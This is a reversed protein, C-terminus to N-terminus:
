KTGNIEGVMVGRVKLAQQKIQERLPSSVVAKRVDWDGRDTITNWETQPEDKKFTNPMTKRMQHIALRFREFGGEEYENDTETLWDRYLQKFEEDDWWYSGERRLFKIGKVLIGREEETLHKLNIPKTMTIEM